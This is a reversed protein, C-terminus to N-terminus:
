FCSMIANLLSQAYVGEGFRWWLAASGVLLGAAAIGITLRGGAPLAAQSTANADNM